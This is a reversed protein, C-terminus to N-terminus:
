GWYEVMLGPVQDYDRKNRSILRAGHAVCIAAIRLDRTGVRIKQKRWAAVSSEAKTEFPLITLGQLDAFIEQFLDYARELSIKGKGSEALRIANLRGRTIEEAVVVPITQDEGPLTALRAAMEADGRLIITMIDTDFAIM